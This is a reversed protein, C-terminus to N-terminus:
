RTSGSRQAVAGDDAVCGRSNWKRPSSLYAIVHGVYQVIFWLPLYTSFPPAAGAAVCCIVIWVGVGVAAAVAVTTSLDTQVQAWRESSPREIRGLVVGVFLSAALASGLTRLMGTWGDPHVGIAIYYFMGSAIGFALGPLHTSPKRWHTPRPWDVDKAGAPCRYIPPWILGTRQIYPKWITPIADLLRKDYLISGVVNYFNLVTALIFLDLTMRPLLFFMGFFATHVPFRVWRRTGVTWNELPAEPVGALRAVLTTSGFALGCDYEYLHLYWYFLWSLGLGAYMLDGMFGHVHWVVTNSRQWIAAAILIYSVNVASEISRWALPTIKTRNRVFSKIKLAALVSHQLGFGLVLAFDIVMRM